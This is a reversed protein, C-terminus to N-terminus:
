AAVDELSIGEANSNMTNIEDFSFVADIDLVMIFTDIQNTIGIIFDSRFKSGINPPPMIEKEEFEIVAQVTDVIAGVLLSEKGITTDFVIICTNNTIETFSYGLKQRLDIIPLVMGRLNIIGKMYGPANPIETIKTMELINLVKGTNVAFAEQGLKFSLYSNIVKSNNQNM